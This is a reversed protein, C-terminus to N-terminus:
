KSKMILCLEMLLALFNLEPNISQGHWIQHQNIKILAPAYKSKDEIRPLLRTYLETYTIDIPIDNKLIWEKSGTYNGSLIYDFFTQDLVNVTLIGRDIVNGHGDAYRQLGKLITRFSPFNADVFLMVAEDDYEVNEAELITFVRKIMLPLMENKISPTKFNFDIVTFRDVVAPIIKTKYNATAIVSVNDSYKEMLSRFAKQFDTSTGDFEDLWAIKPGDGFLSERTAFPKLVNRVTAIGNDDSSNLEIFDAQMEETILNALTSKGIGPLPSVFLLHPLKGRNIYMQIEQKINKPLIIDDLTQPRYKQYWMYEDDLSGNFAM